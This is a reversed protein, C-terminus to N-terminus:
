NGCVLGDRNGSEQFKFQRLRSSGQPIRIRGPRSAGLVLKQLDFVNEVTTSMQQIPLIFKDKYSDLIDDLVSIYSAKLNNPRSLVHLRKVQESTEKITEASIKFKHELPSRLEEVWRNALTEAENRIAKVSVTKATLARVDKRLERLDTEFTRLKELIEAKM